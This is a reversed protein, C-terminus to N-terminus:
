VFHRELLRGNTTEASLAQAFDALVFYDPSLFLCFLLSLASCSTLYCTPPCAITWLGPFWALLSLPQSAAPFLRFTFLPFYCAPQM